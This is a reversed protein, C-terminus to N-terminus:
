FFVNCFIFNSGMTFKMPQQPTLNNKGFSQTFNKKKKLMQITLLNKLNKTM